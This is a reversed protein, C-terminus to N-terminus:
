KTFIIGAVAHSSLSVIPGVPTQVKNIRVYYADETQYYLVVAITTSTKSKQGTSKNETQAIPKNETQSTSKNESPLVDRFYSSERPISEADVILQVEMPRGGGYTQPIRPYLVIVYLFCALLIVVLEVFVYVFRQVGAVFAAASLVRGLWRQAVARKEDPSAKDLAAIFKPRFLEYIKKMLFGFLDMSPFVFTTAFALVVANVIWDFVKDPDREKGIKDALAAAETLERDLNEMARNWQGILKEFFFLVIAIPLGIWVNIPEILQLAPIGLRATHIMVILFGCAYSVAGWKLIPEIDRWKSTGEAM